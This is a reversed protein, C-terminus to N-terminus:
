MRLEVYIPMRTIVYPSFFRIIECIRRKIIHARGGRMRVRKKEVRFFKNM